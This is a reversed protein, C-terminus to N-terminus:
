CVITCLSAYRVQMKSKSLVTARVRSIAVFASHIQILIFFFTNSIPMSSRSGIAWYSRTAPEQEACLCHLAHRVVTCSADPRGGGKRRGGGGM